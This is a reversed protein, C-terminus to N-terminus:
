VRPHAMKDSFAGNEDASAGNGGLPKLSCTLPSEDVMTDASLRFRKLKNV